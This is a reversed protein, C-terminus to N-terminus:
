FKCNRLCNRNFLRWLMIRYKYNCFVFFYGIFYNKAFTNKFAPVAKEVGNEVVLKM